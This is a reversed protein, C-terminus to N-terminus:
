PPQFDNCSVCNNTISFAVQVLSVHRHNKESKYWKTKLNLQKKAELSLLRHKQKDHQYPNYCTRFSMLSNKWKCFKIYYILHIFNFPYIRNLMMQLNQSSFDIFSYCIHHQVAKLNEERGLMEIHVRISNYWMTKLRSHFHKPDTPQFFQRVTSLM